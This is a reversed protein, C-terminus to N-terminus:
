SRKIIKRNEILFINDCQNIIEQNHSILIITKNKQLKIITKIIKKETEKELSSTTEDLM